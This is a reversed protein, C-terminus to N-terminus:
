GGLRSLLNALAPAAAGGAAGLGAGIPGGVLGGLLAGGAVPTARGLAAAGAVKFGSEANPVRRELDKKFQEAIRDLKSDVADEIQVVFDAPLSGKNERLLKNLEKGYEQNAQAFKKMNAIVRKRGDPSQSLSPLTELFKSIEFNSIRAGFINKANKLFNNVIKNYEQSEPTRLAAIDLGSNKLFADYSASDLNGTKELESLRDLDQLQDKAARSKNRFEKIEDKNLELIKNGAKASLEKQQTALNALGLAQQPKLGALGMAQRGEGGEPSVQQEQSGGLVQSLAQAFAQQNPAQAKEKVLEQLLRPDLGALNQAIEPEFGAASLGKAQLGRQQSQEYGQGLSQLINGLGTGFAAGLGAGANGKQPLIIAM